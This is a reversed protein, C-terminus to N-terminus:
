GIGPFGPELGLNDLFNAMAESRRLQPSQLLRVVEFYTERDNKALETLESSFQRAV